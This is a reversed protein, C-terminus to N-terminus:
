RVARRRPPTGAVLLHGANEAYVRGKDDIALPTYAEETASALAVARRLTGDGNIAYLSGDENNVYVVGSRDIAAANVCSDHESPSQFMWEVHLTSQGDVAEAGTHGPDRGLQPWASTALLLSLVTAFNVHRHYPPIGHLPDLRCAFHFKPEDPGTRHRVSLENHDNVTIEITDLM